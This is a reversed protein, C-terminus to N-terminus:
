KLKLVYVDRIYGNSKTYTCEKTMGLKQFSKQSPINEPHITSVILDVGKAKAIEVLHCNIQYLINNGRYEPSVMSRGIEAVKCNCANIKQLSEGYEYENYFLASAGVLQEGDFMGYFETWEDDFFHEKATEKIPLWFEHRELRAEIVSILNELQLRDNKTLKKIMM